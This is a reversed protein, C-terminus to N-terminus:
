FPALKCPTDVSNMLRDNIIEISKDTPDEHETLRILGAKSFAALAENM